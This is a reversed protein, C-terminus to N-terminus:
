KGAGPEIWEVRVRVKGEAILGSLESLHHASGAGECVVEDGDASAAVLFGQRALLLLDGLKTVTAYTPSERAASLARTLQGDLDTWSQSKRTPHNWPSGASRRARLRQSTVSFNKLVWEYMATFSSEGAADGGMETGVFPALGSLFDGYRVRLSDLEGLHAKIRSFLLRQINAELGALRNGVDLHGHVPAWNGTALSERLKIALNDFLRQIAPDSESL